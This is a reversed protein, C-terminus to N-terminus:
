FDLLNWYVAHYSWETYQIYVDFKIGSEKVHKRCGSTEM